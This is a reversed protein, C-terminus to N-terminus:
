PQQAATEFSRLLLLPCQVLKVVKEAISGFIMPKWGSMGHTSIVVMDIQERDIVMMINGAIDNGIEVNSSARLGKSALAKVCSELQEEAREKMEQLIAEEQFLEAGTVPPLMPVVNLLYLEALFRQALATASELAFHSSPSFDIPLLIKKPHFHTHPAQSM